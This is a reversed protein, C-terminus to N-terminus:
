LFYGGGTVIDAGNETKIYTNLGVVVKKGKIMFALTKFINIHHIKKMKYVVERSGIIIAYLNQRNNVFMIFQGM